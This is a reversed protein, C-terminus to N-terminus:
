APQKERLNSSKRAAKEERQREDLTSQGAFEGREYPLEGIFADLDDRRYRYMSRVKVTRIEDAGALRKITSVSVGLYEAAEETSLLAPWREPM